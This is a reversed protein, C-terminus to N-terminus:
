ICIFVTIWIRTRTLTLLIESGMFLFDVVRDYWWSPEGTAISGRNRHNRWHAVSVGDAQCLHNLDLLFDELGSRALARNTPQNTCSISFVRPNQDHIETVETTSVQHFVFRKLTDKSLHQIEIVSTVQWRHYALGTLRTNRFFGHIVVWHHDVFFM